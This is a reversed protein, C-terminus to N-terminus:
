AIRDATVPTGSLMLTGAAAVIPRPGPDRQGRDNLGDLEQEDQPM